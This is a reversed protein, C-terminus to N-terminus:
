KSLTIRTQVLTIDKEAIVCIQSRPFDNSLSTPRGRHLLVDALNASLKFVLLLSPSAKHLHQSHKRAAPTHASRPAAATHPHSSHPREDARCREPEPEWPCTWKDQICTLYLTVVFLGAMWLSGCNQWHMITKLNYITLFSQTLFTKIKSKIFAM